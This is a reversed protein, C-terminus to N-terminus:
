TGAISLMGFGYAKASGIGKELCAFFKASDIVRLHGNFIVGAFTLKDTQNNISANSRFGTEVTYKLSVVDQVAPAVKVSLLEFGSEVSKGRLWDIKLEDNNLPIRRGNRKKIGSLRESKSSSEIKKTPNAKLRFRLITDNPIKSFVSGIERTAPEECLYGSKKLYSWDPIIDSQVLLLLRNRFDGTELRYLVKFYERANVGDSCQPFASMVIRHLQQCDNIAHWTNRNYSNLILQSLIM